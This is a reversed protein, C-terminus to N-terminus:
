KRLVRLAGLGLLGAALLALSAPEPVPQDVVNTVSSLTASGSPGGIAYIDKKLDVMNVGAFDVQAALNNGTISLTYYGGAPCAALLGGACLGEDVGYKGTGSQGGVLGYLRVRNITNAGDTTTVTYHFIADATDGSSASFIGDLEFGLGNPVVKESAALPATGGGMNITTWTFNAFTMDGISCAFDTAIYKDLAGSVCTAAEAAGSVAAMALSILIGAIVSKSTRRM